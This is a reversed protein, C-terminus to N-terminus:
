CNPRRTLHPNANLANRKSDLDTIQSLLEEKTFKSLKEASQPLEEFMKEYELACQLLDEYKYTPAIGKPTTMCSFAM